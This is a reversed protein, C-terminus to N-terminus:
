RLAELQRIAEQLADEASKGRDYIGGDIANALIGRERRSLTLYSANELTGVVMAAEDDSLMTYSMKRLEPASLRVAPIFMANRLHPELFRMADYSAGPDPALKPIGIMSWVEAPNARAQFAPFPYLLSNPMDSPTTRFWFDGRGLLWCIM